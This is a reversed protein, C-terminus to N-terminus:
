ISLTKLVQSEQNIDDYRWADCIKVDISDVKTDEKLAKLCALLKGEDAPSRTDYEVIAEITQLGKDLSATGCCTYCDYQEVQPILWGFLLDVYEPNEANGIWISDKVDDITLPANLNIVVEACIQQYQGYHGKKLQRNNMRKLESKNPNGFRDM